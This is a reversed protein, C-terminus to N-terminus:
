LYIEILGVPAEVFIQKKKHDLRKITEDTVPILVEKGEFVIQLIAQSTHDIISEIQGINGHTKDIVEYGIVEHFYFQTGSLKPLSKLPLYLTCGILLTALDPNDINKFDVTAKIGKILIQDIRYLVLNGKIDIFVETLKKYFSPNDTDLQIILQGKNGVSKSIYGLNFYESLDM